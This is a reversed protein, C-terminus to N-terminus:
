LLWGLFRKPKDEKPTLYMLAQHDVMEDGWALVQYNERLTMRAHFGCKCRFEWGGEGEQKKVVIHQM